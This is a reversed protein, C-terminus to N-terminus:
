NARVRKTVVAGSAPRLTVDAVLAKKKLKKGDATLKLKIPATTGAKVSYTGAALKRLKAAGSGVKLKKASSVLASGTCDAKGAPCSVSVLVAASGFKLSPSAIALVGAALPASTTPTPTVAAPAPTAAPTPSTVPAPNTVPAPTPDTVPAPPPTWASFTSSVITTAAGPTFTSSLDQPNPTTGPQCDITFSQGAITARIWLSGKPQVSANGAGGPISPLSGAPGQAIDIAGGADPAHWTSATSPALALSTKTVTYPGLFGTDTLTFKLKGSTRLAQPADTSGAGAVAMWADVAVEKNGTGIATAILFGYPAIKAPLWSPITVSPQIAGVDLNRGNQAATAALELPLTGWQGDSACANNSLVPAASAAAPASVAIAAAAAAMLLPRASLSM